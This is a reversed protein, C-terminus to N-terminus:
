HNIFLLVALQIAEHHFSICWMATFLLIESSTMSYFIVVNGEAHLKGYNITVSRYSCIILKICGHLFHKDVNGTPHFSM